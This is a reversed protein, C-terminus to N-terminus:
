DKAAHDVGKLASLRSLASLANRARDWEKSPFSLMPFDELAAVAERMAERLAGVEPLRMAHALQDAHSPIPLARLYAALPAFDFKVWEGRRMTTDLQLGDGAAREVVSACRERMAVAALPASLDARIYEVRNGWSGCHAYAARPGDTMDLDVFLREPADSM